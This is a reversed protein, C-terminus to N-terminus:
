DTREPIPALGDLVRVAIRHIGDATVVDIRYVGAVWPGIGPGVDAPRVFLSRGGPVDADIPHADIRELHDDGVLEWIWADLPDRGDPTTFGLAVIPGEGRDVVAMSQGVVVTSAEFWREIYAARTTPAPGPDPDVFLARIGWGDHTEVVPAVAAWIPGGAIPGAPFTRGPDRTSSAASASTM